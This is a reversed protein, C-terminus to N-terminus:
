SKNRIETSSLSFNFNEAIESQVLIDAYVKKSWVLDEQATGTRNFILFKVNNEKFFPYLEKNFSGAYKSDLIRVWTDAGIIFTINNYGLSKLYEVKSKFTPNDNVYFGVNFQKARKNIEFYDLCGKDANVSSLEYYVIDDLIDSATDHIKIHADHIPNWSGPYVCINAGHCPQLVNNPELMEFKIRSDIIKATEFSMANAALNISEYFNTLISQPESINPFNFGNYEFESLNYIIALIMDSVLTEEIERSLGQTMIYYCVMTYNHKHISIFVKHERGERENNTALSCSVGLGVLNKSSPNSLLCERYSARALAVAGEESCYKDVEAGVFNHFQQKAYPVNFGLITKSAGGYQMFENIFSQGGGAFAGYLMFDRENIENIINEYM